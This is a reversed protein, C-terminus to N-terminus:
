TSMLRGMELKVDGFASVVDADGLLAEANVSAAWGKFRGDLEPRAAMEKLAFTGIGKIKVQQDEQLGAIIGDIMVNLFDGAEQETTGAMQAVAKRLEAWTMKENAM